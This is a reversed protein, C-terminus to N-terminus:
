VYRKILVTASVEHVMEAIHGDPTRITFRILNLLDQKIDMCYPTEFTLYQRNTGPEVLIKRLIRQESNYCYSPDIIDCCVILYRPQAMDIFTPVYSFDLLACKWKGKYKDSLQIDRPLKITFVAPRNGEFYANSDDSSAFLHFDQKEM